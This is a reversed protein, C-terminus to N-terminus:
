MTIEDEVIQQEWSEFEALQENPSPIVVNLFEASWRCVTEIYDNFEPITLKKSEGAIDIVDGTQKSVMRRRLHVHKLVEHADDNTRVDDYGADYLGKRVLPVVVAWYYSNQPISRRRMDKVTVLHKGDKLQNFAARFEKMNVVSRNAIDIIVEVM